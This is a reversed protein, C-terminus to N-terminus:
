CVIRRSERTLPEVVAGGTTQEKSGPMAPAGFRVLDKCEFRVDGGYILDGEETVEYAGRYLSGENRPAAAGDPTAVESETQAMAPLATTAIMGALLVALLLTKQVVEGMM